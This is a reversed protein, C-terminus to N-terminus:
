LSALKSGELLLATLAKKHFKNDCLYLSLNVLKFTLIDIQKEKGETVTTSCYVLLDRPPVKYLKLRQQVSTIIGLVSLQKALLKINFASVSMKAM